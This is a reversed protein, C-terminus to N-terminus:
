SFKLTPVKTCVVVLTSNKISREDVLTSKYLSM